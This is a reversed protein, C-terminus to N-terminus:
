AEDEKTISFYGVEQGHVTIPFSMGESFHPHREIDDAVERLVAAVDFSVGEEFTKNELKSTNIKIEVKM